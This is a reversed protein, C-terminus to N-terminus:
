KSFIKDKKFITIITKLIIKIDLLFSINKVYYIDNNIKEQSSISNRYFAQSYGTIGPKVDLRKKDNETYKEYSDITDPRPGVISMNGLLVNIIQPIEDISTKRLFRGIRTQRPDDISNFTSGDELRIDPSNVKMSRYKIMSFIQGRYGLRKHIFFIPGKDDLKIIIFLILSIFVFIPLIIISIFIDFFRKIYRYM